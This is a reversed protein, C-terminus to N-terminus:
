IDFKLTSLRAKRKNKSIKIRSKASVEDRRARNKQYYEKQKQKNKIYTTNMYFTQKFIAIRKPKNLCAYLYPLYKSINSTDYWRGGRIDSTVTHHEYDYDSFLFHRIYLNRFWDIESFLKITDSNPSLDLEGYAFCLNPNITFEVKNRKVVITKGRDLLTEEEETISTMIVNVNGNSPDVSRAIFVFDLNNICNSTFMRKKKTNWM